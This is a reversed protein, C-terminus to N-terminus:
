SKGHLIHLRIFSMTNFNLFHVKQHYRIKIEFKQKLSLYPAGFDSSFKQTMHAVLTCVLGSFVIQNPYISLGDGNPVCTESDIWRDVNSLCKSLRIARYVDM